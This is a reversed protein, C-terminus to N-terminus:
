RVGDDKRRKGVMKEKARREERALFGKLLVMFHISSEYAEFLAGFIHM